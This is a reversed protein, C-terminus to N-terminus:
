CVSDTVVPVFRHQVRDPLSVQENISPIFAARSSKHLRGVGVPEPLVGGHHGPPIHPDGHVGVVSSVNQASVLSRIFSAKLLEDNSGPGSDDGSGSIEAPLGGGVVQAGYVGSSSGSAATASPPPPLNKFALETHSRKSRFRDRLSRTRSCIGGAEEGGGGAKTKSLVNKHSFNM